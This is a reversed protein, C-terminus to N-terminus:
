TQLRPSRRCSYSQASPLKLPQESLRPLVSCSSPSIHEDRYERDGSVEVWEEVCNPQPPPHCIACTYDGSQKRWFRTNHCCRCPSNPARDTEEPQAAGSAGGPWGNKPPGYWFEATRQAHEVSPSAFDKRRRLAAGACMLWRGDDFELRVPTGGCIATICQPQEQPAHSKESQIRGEEFIRHDRKLEWQAWSMGGTSSYGMGQCMHDRVAWPKEPNQEMAALVNMPVPEGDVRRLKFRNPIGAGDLYRIPLTDSGFVALAQRVEPSDLDSWLGITTVGDLQMLRVGARILVRGARTLDEPTPEPMSTM